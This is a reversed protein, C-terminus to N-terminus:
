AGAAVPVGAGQARHGVSQQVDGARHQAVTDAEVRLAGPNPSGSRITSRYSTADPGPAGRMRHLPVLALRRAPGCSSGARDAAATVRLATASRLLRSAAQRGRSVTRSTFANRACRPCEIARPGVWCRHRSPPMIADESELSPVVSVFKLIPKCFPPSDKEVQWKWVSDHDASGRRRHDGSGLREVAAAHVDGRARRLTDNLLAVAVATTREGAQFTLAGSAATYDTGAAAARPPM